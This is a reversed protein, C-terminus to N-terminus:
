AYQIKTKWLRLATSFTYGRRGDVTYQVKTYDFKQKMKKMKITLVEKVVIEKEDTEIRVWKLRDIELLDIVTKTKKSIKKQLDVMIGYVVFIMTLYDKDVAEEINSALEESIKDATLNMIKLLLDM